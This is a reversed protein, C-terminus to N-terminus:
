ACCLDDQILQLTRKTGELLLCSEVEREMREKTEFPLLSGGVQRALVKLLWLQTNDSICLRAVRLFCPCPPVTHVGGHQRHLLGIASCLRTRAPMSRSLSPEVSSCARIFFNGKGEAPSFYCWEGWGLGTSFMLASIWPQQCFACCGFSLTTPSCDRRPSM